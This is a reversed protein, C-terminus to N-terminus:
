FFFRRRKPVGINRKMEYNLKYNLTIGFNYYIDNHKSYQTTLGDILDSFVYSLGLEAGASIRPFIAYKAGIGFPVIAAFTSGGNFRPSNILRDRAWVMNYAAGGGAFVYLSFPKRYHRIRGRVQMISYFYNEDSDPIIYFEAVATLENLYAFFGYQRSDNRSGEDHQSLFGSSFKAKAQFLKAFRYRIGVNVGPRIKLFNIDKLGYWTSATSAGGIDGFYHLGSVSGFVEYPTRKWPQSTVTSVLLFLSTIILLRKLM